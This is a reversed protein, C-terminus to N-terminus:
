AFGKVRIHLSRCCAIRRRCRWSARQPRLSSSRPSQLPTANIHNLSAWGPRSLFGNSQECFSPKPFSKENDQTMVGNGFHGSGSSGPPRRGPGCYQRLHTKFAGMIRINMVPCACFLMSTPASCRRPSVTEPPGRFPAAQPHVDPGHPDREFYLFSSIAARHDAKPSPHPPRLAERSYGHMAFYSLSQHLRAARRRQGGNASNKETERRKRMKFSIGTAGPSVVLM